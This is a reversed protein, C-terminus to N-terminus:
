SVLHPARSLIREAAAEGSRVCDPVGVGGLANGALALGTQSELRSAIEAARGLHGVEYRPMSAPHFSVTTAVPAAEIGLLDRLEERMALTVADADAGPTQEDGTFARLLTMGDPARGAFKLSSFSCAILRRKERRPVVFGAGELPRPLD